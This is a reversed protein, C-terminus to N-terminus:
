KKLQVSTANTWSSWAWAREAPWAMAALGALAGAGLFGRRTLTHRPSEGERGSAKTVNPRERRQGDTM